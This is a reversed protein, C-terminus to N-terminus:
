TPTATATTLWSADPSAVHVAFPFPPAPAAEAAGTVISLELPFGAVAGLLSQGVAAIPVPGDAIVLVDLDSAATFGGLAASGPLYVGVLGPLMRRCTAEIRSADESWPEDSVAMRPTDTVRRLRVLDPRDVDGDTTRGSGRSGRVVRPQGLTVM